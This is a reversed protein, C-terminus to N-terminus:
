EAANDDVEDKVKSRLVSVRVEYPFDESAILKGNDIAPRFRARKAIRRARNTKATTVDILAERAVRKVRGTKDITVSVPITEFNEDTEVPQRVVSFSFSPLKVPNEFSALIPHDLPLNQAGTWALDYYNQAANQRSSLLNLDGLGLLARLTNVLDKEDKAKRLYSKLYSESRAFSSLRKSSRDKVRNLDTYSRQRTDQYFSRDVDSQIRSKLHHALALEGFPLLVESLPRDGYRNLAYSLYKTSKNLRHLSLESISPENLYQDLFFNGLRVVLDYSYNDRNDPIKKELWIIRQLNDETDEFNSLAFNLEFLERLIPRQEIANVGNNIKTIHLANVLMKRAEDTRGAQMLVRGYSLYSEGLRESFADESEKLLQVQDFQAKLAQRQEDSLSTVPQINIRPAIIPEAGQTIDYAVLEEDVNATNIDSLAVDEAFEVKKSESAQTTLEVAQARDEVAPAQENNESPTEFKDFSSEVSPESVSTLKSSKETQIVNTPESRALQDVEINKVLKSSEDLQPSEELQPSQKDQDSKVAKSLAWGNKKETNQANANQAILLNSISIAFLLLFLLKPRSESAIKKGGLSVIDNNLTM